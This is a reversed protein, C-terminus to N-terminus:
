GICIGFRSDWEFGKKECKCSVNWRNLVLPVFDRNKERSFGCERHLKPAEVHCPNSDADWCEQLDHYHKRPCCPDLCTM